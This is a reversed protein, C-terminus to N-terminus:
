AHQPVPSEQALVERVTNLFTLVSTPKILYANCGAEFARVRNEATAMATIVIVPVHRLLPHRRVEKILEFGSLLPLRVDTIVLDPRQDLAFRLAELGNRAPTVTMGAQQLLLTYLRLSAGDDDVILATKSM